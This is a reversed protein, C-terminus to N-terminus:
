TVAMAFCSMTGDDAIDAGYITQVVKREFVDLTSVDFVPRAWIAPHIHHAVQLTEDKNLSLDSENEIISETWLLVRQCAHNQM